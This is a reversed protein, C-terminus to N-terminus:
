FMFFAFVSVLSLAGMSNKFANSSSNVPTSTPGRTSTSTGNHTHGSDDLGTHTHGSDDVTGTPGPVVPVVPVGPVPLRDDGPRPVLNDDVQANVFSVSLIAFLTILSFKNFHM